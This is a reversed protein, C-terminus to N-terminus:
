GNKELQYTTFIGHNIPNPPAPNRLWLLLWLLLVHFIVHASADDFYWEPFVNRGKPPTSPRPPHYTINYQNTTSRGQFIISHFDTPIIVNGVHHSFYFEHELGGILICLHVYLSFIIIHGM